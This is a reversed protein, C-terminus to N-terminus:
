LGVKRPIYRSVDRGGAGFARIANAAAAPQEEHLLHGLGRFVEVQAGPIPRQSSRPPKRRCRWTGTGSWSSCTRRCASPPRRALPTVDWQSMMAVTAAVHGRDSLLRRYYEVGRHDLTSGTRSILRRVVGHSSAIWAFGVVPLPTRAVMMTLQSLIDSSPRHFNGLAGNIAVVARPPRPLDLALRLAIAAGASHGVIIEPVLGEASLLRAIDASMAELGCRSLDALRTFGQGPLDIAVVRHDRALNPLVDRWSHTSAGAGHLLLVCPGRGAEQLHWHHPGITVFRSKDANPWFPKYDDWNM